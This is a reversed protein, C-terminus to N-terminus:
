CVTQFYSISAVLRCVALLSRTCFNNIKKAFQIRKELKLSKKKEENSEKESIEFVGSSSSSSCLNEQQLNVGARMLMLRNRFVRLWRFTNRETM